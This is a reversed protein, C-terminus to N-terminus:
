KENAAKGKKEARAKIEMALIKPLDGAIQLGALTGQIFRANDWTNVTAMKAMERGYTEALKRAFLAFGPSDCTERLQSLDYEDPDIRAKM